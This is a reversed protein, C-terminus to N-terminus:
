STAGGANAFIVSLIKNLDRQKEQLNYTRQHSKRSEGELVEAAGELIDDITIEEEPLVARLLQEPLIRKGDWVSRFPSREFSGRLQSCYDNATATADFDNIHAHCEKRVHFAILVWILFAEYSNQERLKHILAILTRITKKTPLGDMLPAIVARVFSLNPYTNYCRIDECKKIDHTLCFCTRKKFSPCEKPTQSHSESDDHCISCYRYRSFNYLLNIGCGHVERGVVETCKMSTDIIKQIKASHSDSPHLPNQKRFRWGGYMLVNAMTTTPPQPPIHEHINNYDIKQPM